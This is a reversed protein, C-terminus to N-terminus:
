RKRSVNIVALGYFLATTMLLIIISVSWSVASEGFYFIVGMESQFQNIAREPVNDFAIEIPVRMMVQRLLSAAHSLPFLKVVMQVAEPFNGLPIYTGTIFGVMVGLIASAASFANISGLFSVLFFVMSSSAMVSILIIAITKVTDLLPLFIGGSAVIYLQAFVFTILTMFVGIAYAGLIYGGVLSSRPLPSAAFDKLIKKSRDEVMIGFAGMTTTISAIAIMGAMIWSDILFGINEYQEYGQRIMVGLFLVYLAFVLIVSLFSWFVGAKDRLFIKINRKALAIM